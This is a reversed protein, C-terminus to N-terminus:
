YKILGGSSRQGTAERMKERMNPDQQAPARHTPKADPMKHPTTRPMGAAPQGPAPAGGRLRENLATMAKMVGANYLAQFRMQDVLGTEPNTAAQAAEGYVGAMVQQMVDPNTKDVLTAVLTRAAPHEVPQGMENPFKYYGSAHDIAEKRAAADIKYQQGAAGAGAGRAGGGRLGQEYLGITARQNAGNQDATQQQIELSGRQYEGTQQATQQAVNLSGQQYDRTSNAQYNQRQTEGFEKMASQFMPMYTGPDAASLARLTFLNQMQPTSADYVQLKGGNKVDVIGVHTKGGVDVAQATYGEPVMTSMGAIAGQPDSGWLNAAAIISKVKEKNGESEALQAYGIAQKPDSVGRSFDEYAQARSYPTQSFGLGVAETDATEPMPETKTTGARGLTEKALKRDSDARSREDRKEKQNEAAYAMDQMQRYTSLGTTAAAGLFTGFGM